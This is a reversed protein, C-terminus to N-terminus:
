STVQFPPLLQCLIKNGTSLFFVLRELCTYKKLHLRNEPSCVAKFARHSSELSTKEAKGSPILCLQPPLQLATRSVVLDKALFSRLPVSLGNNKPREAPRVLVVKTAGRLHIENKKGEQGNECYASKQNLRNVRDAASILIM